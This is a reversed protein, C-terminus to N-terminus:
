ARHPDKMALYIGFLMGALLGFLWDPTNWKMAIIERM